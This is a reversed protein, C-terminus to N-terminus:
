LVNRQIQSNMSPKQSYNCMINVHVIMESVSGIRYMFLEM